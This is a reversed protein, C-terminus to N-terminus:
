NEKRDRHLGHGEAGMLDNSVESRDASQEGNRGHVTGRAPVIMARAEARKRVDNLGSHAPWPGECVMAAGPMGGHTLGLLPLLTHRLGSAMKALMPATGSPNTTGKVPIM